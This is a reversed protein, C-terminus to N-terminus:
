LQSLLLWAQLSRPSTFNTLEHYPYMIPDLTTLRHFRLSSHCSSLYFGLSFLYEYLGATMELTSSAHATKTTMKMMRMMPLHGISHCSFTEIMWRTISSM